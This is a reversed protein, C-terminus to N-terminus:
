GGPSNVIFYLRISFSGGTQLITLGRRHVSTLRSYLIM